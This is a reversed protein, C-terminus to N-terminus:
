LHKELWKFKRLIILFVLCIFFIIFVWFIIVHNSFFLTINENIKQFNLHEDKALPCSKSFEIENSEASDRFNYTILNPSFSYGRAFGKRVLDFANRRTKLGNRIVNVVEGDLLFADSNGPNFSEFLSVESPSSIERLYKTQNGSDLYRNFFVFYRSKGHQYLNVYNMINSLEFKYAPKMTDFNIFMVKENIINYKELAYYIVNDESVKNDLIVVHYKSNGFIPIFKNKRDPNEKGYYIVKM